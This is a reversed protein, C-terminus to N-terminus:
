EGAAVRSAELQKEVLVAGGASSRGKAPSKGVPKFFSSITGKKARIDKSADPNQYSPKSM